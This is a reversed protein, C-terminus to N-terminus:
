DWSYKGLKRVITRALQSLDEGFSYQRVVESCGNAIMLNVGMAQGNRYDTRIGIVPIGKGNALGVEFAVGSDVDAGDLIAVLASSQELMHVCRRYLDTFHEPDNFKGKVRFDQPLIMEIAPLESQIAAALRRNWMREVQSFLPAALYIKKAEAM